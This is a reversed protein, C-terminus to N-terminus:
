YIGSSILFLRSAKFILMGLVPSATREKKNEIYIYINKKLLATDTTSNLLYTEKPIRTLGIKM